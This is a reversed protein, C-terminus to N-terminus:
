PTRTERPIGLIDPSIKTVGFDYYLWAAVRYYELARDRAPQGCLPSFVAGREAAYKKLEPSNAIKEDWIGTVASIVEGPVGRPIFLGFYNLDARYNPIWKKVTPVFGYGEIFLDADTFSVLPRIKGKRILDAQEAAPHSIVRVQGSRAANVVAKGTEFTIHGYEIGTYKRLVEMAVHGASSQGSTAVSIQKPNARFGALLDDFSRYKSNAGVGIVCAQAVSLFIEWDNRIDTDLMDLLRYAALDVVTGAAWTYGDKPADMVTKTGASGSAGSQNSVVVRARYGLEKQLEAATIRTIRDVPSGEEWPVIIRITKSPRWVGAQKQAGAFLAGFGFVALILIYVIRKSFIM